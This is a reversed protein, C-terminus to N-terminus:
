PCFRVVRRCASPSRANSSAHATPCANDTSWITASTNALTVYAAVIAPILCSYINLYLILSWPRSGRACLPRNREFMIQRAIARRPPRARPGPRRPTRLPRPLTATVRVLAPSRRRGPRRGSQGAIVPSPTCGLVGEVNAGLPQTGAPPHDRSAQATAMHSVCQGM